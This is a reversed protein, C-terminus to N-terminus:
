ASLCRTIGQVTKKGKRLGMANAHEKLSKHEKKKASLATLM